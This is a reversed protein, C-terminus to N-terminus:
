KKTAADELQHVPAMAEDTAAKACQADGPECGPYRKGLEKCAEMAANSVRQELEARGSSSTLDLSAASVGDSLSVDVIPIGSATKGAAKEVSRTSTVTVQPTTQALASGAVISAAVM